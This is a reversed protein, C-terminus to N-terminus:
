IKWIGYIEEKGIAGERIIKIKGESLDVVTSPKGPLIGYDIYMAVGNGLENKAIDISYPPKGGHKNASTATIPVEKAIKIAIENAPIRIGIKNKAVIDPIIRKKKLVITIAGPMFKNVIKYALDNMFAFEEIDNVDSISISLPL